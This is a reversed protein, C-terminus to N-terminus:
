QKKLSIVGGSVAILRRLIEKIREKNEPNKMKDKLMAILEKVTQPPSPRSFLSIVDNDVLLEATGVNPIGGSLSPTTPRSAVKIEPSALSPTGTKKLAAKRMREEQNQRAIVDAASPPPPPIQPSAGSIKVKKMQPSAGNDLKRKKDLSPSATSAPKVEPSSGVKLKIKVGLSPSSGNGSSTGDDTLAPSKAKDNLQPSRAKGNLSPTSKGNSNLAPSSAGKETKVKKAHKQLDSPPERKNGKSLKLAPSGSKLSPSLPETKIAKADEKAAADKAATAEADDDSEQDDSEYPNDEGDSVYAIEDGRKRLVKKINKAAKSKLGAKKKNAEEEDEDIDDFDKKKANIGHERKKAEKAEDENEIGFDVNEDDSVVEDFDLEEELEHNKGRSKGGKAPESTAKFTQKKLQKNIVELEEKKLVVGDIAAAEETVQLLNIETGLVNLDRVSKKNRMFWREEAAARKSNASMRAEAEETTLTAYKTKPKAAFKYWKSVPRVRFGDAAKEKDEESAIVLLVYNARQSGELNGEIEEQKSDVIIWPYRDPDKPRTRHLSAEGDDGVGFFKPRLKKKFPQLRSKLAAAGGGVKSPDLVEKPQEKVEVLGDTAGPEAKVEGEPEPIKRHMRIPPALSMLDFRSSNIRMINCKLGPGASILRYETYQGEGDM